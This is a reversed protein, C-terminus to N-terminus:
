FPTLPTRIERSMNSLFADKLRNMEKAKLQAAETAQKADILDNEYKKRDSIDKVAAFYYVPEGVSDTM